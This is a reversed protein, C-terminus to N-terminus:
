LKKVVLRDPEASVIQYKRSEQTSSIDIHLEGNSGVSWSAPTKQSADGPGPGSTIAIGDSKLQFGHRGRSLPFAYSSPRFVMESPTDEEYSHVWEPGVIQAPVEPM